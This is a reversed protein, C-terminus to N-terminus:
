PTDEPVDETHEKAARFTPRDDLTPRRASLNTVNAQKTKAVTKALERNYVEEALELETYADLGEAGGMQRAEDRTIMEAQRLVDVISIEYHRCITVLDIVSITNSTAQRNLTAQPMGVAEAIGRISRTGSLAKLASAMNKTMVRTHSM